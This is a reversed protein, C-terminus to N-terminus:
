SKDWRGIYSLVSFCCLRVWSLNKISFSVKEKQTTLMFYFFVVFINRCVKFCYPLWYYSQLKADMGLAESSSMGSSRWWMRYKAMVLIQIKCVKVYEKMRYYKKRFTVLTKWLSKTVCHLRISGRDIELM